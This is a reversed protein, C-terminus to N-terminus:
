PRGGKESQESLQARVRALGRSVRQRVVSESCRLELALERYAREEVVRARVAEREAEPLEEVAALVASEAASALAEVRELDDDGLELPSMRLRRRVGDQVVARRQSERLKNHAIGILWPGASAHQARYRGCASLAAAFVEAALDAAVERDGTARLCFGVVLGLHRRYFAAFADADGGATAALLAEDEM